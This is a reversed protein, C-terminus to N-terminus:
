RKDRPPVPQKAGHAGHGTLQAPEAGKMLGVHGGAERVEDNARRWDKLPEEPTFRRYDAFPSQYIAGAPNPAPVTPKVQPQRPHHVGDQSAPTGQPWALPVQLAAVLCVGLKVKSM